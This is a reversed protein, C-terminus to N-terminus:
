ESELIGASRSLTAGSTRAYGRPGGHAVPAISMHSIALGYYDPATLVINHKLDTM